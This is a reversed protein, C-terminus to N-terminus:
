CLSIQKVLAIREARSLLDDDLREVLLGAFPHMCKTIKERLQSKQPHHAQTLRYIEWLRRIESAELEREEVREGTLVWNALLGETCDLRKMRSMFLLRSIARKAEKRQECRILLMSLYGFARKWIAPINSLLAMFVANRFHRIAQIKKGQFACWIGDAYSACAM